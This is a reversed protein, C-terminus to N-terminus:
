CVLTIALSVHVNLNAPKNLAIYVHERYQWDEDFIRFVLGDTELTQKYHDVVEGNISIEGDEIL